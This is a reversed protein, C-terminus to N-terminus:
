RSYFEVILTPDFVRDLDEGEPLSTIKGSTTSIDCTLWKPLQSSKHTETMEKVIGTDKKSEKISIEDGISVSFSPINVKKGNVLVFSHSVIQRAQRRTKALGMRYIVNDLRRELLQVMIEGTNGESRTAKEFYRSFQKELLGYVAKAKQKELLQEGYSSLRKRRKANKPGHIGPPYPRRKAYKDKGLSIGLRRSLKVIPTQNKAM